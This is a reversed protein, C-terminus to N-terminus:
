LSKGYGLVYDILKTMSQPDHMGVIVLGYKSSRNWIIFGPTGSIGYDIAENTDRVIEEKSKNLYMNLEKLSIGTITKILNLVYSENIVKPVNGCEKEIFCLDYVKAYIDKMIKLVADPNHTAMYAAEIYEQLKFSESHVILNKLVIALVGKEVLPMLKPLTENYFWACYPCHVDEYIYLYVPADKSGIVPVDNRISPQIETEVPIDEYMIYQSLQSLLYYHLSRSSILLGDVDRFIKLLEKSVEGKLALAILPYSYVNLGSLIPAASSSRILCTEIGGSIRAYRSLLRTFLMKVMDIYTSNPKNRLYFVVILNSNKGCYKDLISKAAGQPGVLKEFEEKPATYTTTYTVTPVTWLNRRAIILIASAVVIGVVIIAFILVSLRKGRL